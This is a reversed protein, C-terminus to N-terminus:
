TRAKIGRKKREQLAIDIAEAGLRHVADRLLFETEGFFQRNAKSAMLRAMYRSTIRAKALLLDEIAGAEEEQEATLEIVPMQRMVVEERSPWVRKGGQWIGGQMPGFVRGFDM